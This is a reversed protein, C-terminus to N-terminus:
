FPMPSCYKQISIAFRGLRFSCRDFRAATTSKSYFIAVAVAVVVAVVVSIIFLYFYFLHAMLNPARRQVTLSCLLPCHHEKALKSTRWQEVACATKKEREREAPCFFFLFISLFSFLSFLLANQSCLSLQQEAALQQLLRSLSLSLSLAVPDSRLYFFFPCACCHRRSAVRRPM